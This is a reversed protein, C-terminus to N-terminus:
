ANDEEKGTSLKALAKMVTFLEGYHSPDIMNILRMLRISAPPIPEYHRQYDLREPFLAAVSVNFALSLQMLRGAYVRNTGNEYKQVQQSTVGVAEGVDQQTMGMTRRLVRLQRSVHLDVDRDSIM